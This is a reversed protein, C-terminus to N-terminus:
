RGLHFPADPRARANSGPAPPVDAGPYVGPQALAERGDGVGGPKATAAAVRELETAELTRIPSDDRQNPVPAPHAATAITTLIETM